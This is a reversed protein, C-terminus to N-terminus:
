SIHKRLIEISYSCVFYCLMDKVLVGESSTAVVVKVKTVRFKSGHGQGEFKVQLNDLRDLM